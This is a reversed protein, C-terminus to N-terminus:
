PAAAEAASGAAAARPAGAFAAFGDRWHVYEPAWGLETRIRRNSAGRQTTM